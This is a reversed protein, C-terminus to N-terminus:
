GTWGDDCESIFWTRIHWIKRVSQPIIVVVERSLRDQAQCTSPSYFDQTHLLFRLRQGQFCGVKNEKRSTVKYEM